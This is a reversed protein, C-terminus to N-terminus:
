DSDERFARSLSFWMEPRAMTGRLFYRSGHGMLMVCSWSSQTEADHEHSTRTDSDRRRSAGALSLRGGERSRYNYLRM